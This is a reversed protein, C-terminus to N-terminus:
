RVPTNTGTPEYITQKVDKSYSRTAEDWRAYNMVVEGPEYRYTLQFDPKWEEEAGDWKSATESLLRNQDDYTFKYRLYNHLYNGDQRYITRSVVLNNRVEENTVFDEPTKAEADPVSVWALVSFALIKFLNIAKM